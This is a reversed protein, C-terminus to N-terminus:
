NNCSTQKDEIQVNGTIAFDLAKWTVVNGPTYFQDKMYSQIECTSLVYNWMHVDTLMGQFSQKIDFGGGHSDQEQGLVIIANGNIYKKTLPQGNLWLQLLGSSWDWTTCISHWKNPAYDVNTYPRERHCVTLAHLSSQSPTIKIHDTDTEVRFVLM